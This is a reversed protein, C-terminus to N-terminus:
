DELLRHGQVERVHREHEDQHVAKTMPNALIETGPMWKLAYGRNVQERMYWLRLAAHKMGRGQAEGNVFNVMAENDAYAERVMTFERLEVLINMVGAQQKFAEFLGGVAYTQQENDQVGMAHGDLEGEFTSLVVDVNAKAKSSILGAKAGLRTGYAIVSRGNPASHMSMDTHTQVIIDDRGGVWLIAKECTAYTHMVTKAAM